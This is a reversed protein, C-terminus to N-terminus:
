KANFLGFGPIVGLVNAFFIFLGLTALLPFYKKAYKEGLIDKALGMLSSVYIEAINQLGTPVIKLNRTALVALGVLLVAVLILHGVYVFDHDISGIFTFLRGEM